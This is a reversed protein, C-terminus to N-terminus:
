NAVVAQNLYKGMALALAALGNNLKDRMRKEIDVDCVNAVSSYDADAAAKLRM